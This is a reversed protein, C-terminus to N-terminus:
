YTYEPPTIGHCRLYTVAQGRHHTVHDITAHFGKVATDALKSKELSNQVTKYASILYDIVEKKGTKTAPQEWTVEKGKIHNENWWLMGYAIHHMLELFNWGGGAPKFSYSGDPMAEAVAITYTKSTELTALLQEKM